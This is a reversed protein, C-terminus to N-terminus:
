SKFSFRSRYMHSGGDKPLDFQTCAYLSAAGALMATRLLTTLINISVCAAGGRCGLEVRLPQVCCFDWLKQHPQGAAPDPLKM